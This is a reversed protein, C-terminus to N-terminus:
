NEIQFATITNDIKQLPSLESNIRKTGEEFRFKKKKTKMILNGKEEKSLDIVTM